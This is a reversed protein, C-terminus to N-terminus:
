APGAVAPHRQERELIRVPAPEARRRLGWVALGAAVLAAAAESLFIAAVVAEAGATGSTGAGAIPTLRSAGTLGAIACGLWNAWTAYIWSGMLVSRARAGLAFTGALMGVVVLVVGGLIGVTHAALMMRPNAAAPIAFATLLAVLILVFGFQMMRRNM